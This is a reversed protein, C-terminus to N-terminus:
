KVEEDEYIPEIGLNDHDSEGVFRSVVEWKRWPFTRVCRWAAGCMCVFVDGKEAKENKYYTKCSHYGM